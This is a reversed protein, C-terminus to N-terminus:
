LRGFLDKLKKYDKKTDKEVSSSIDIVNPKVIRYAENINESNIGGALITFHNKSFEKVYDWCFSEGTGGRLNKNYTDLLIGKAFSYKNAEEISKENIVSISKWVDCKIKSCMENTEDSHLQAIDINTEKIIQNIAYIDIDAFVGVTKIGNKLFKKMLVVEESTVKRKSQAFVFGVYDVDFKNIVEVDEVSRLGCIKIKVKM